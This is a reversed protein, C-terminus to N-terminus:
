MSALYGHVCHLLQHWLINWHSWHHFYVSVFVGRFATVGVLCLFSFKVIVKLAIKVIYLYM